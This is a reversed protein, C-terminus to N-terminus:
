TIVLVEPTHEAVKRKRIPQTRVRLVPQPDIDNKVDSIM